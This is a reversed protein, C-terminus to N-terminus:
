LKKIIVYYNGYEYGSEVIEHEYEKIENVESELENEQYLHYYRYYIEGSITKYPVMEDYSTFKRKSKEPQNFAWVYLLILGDKKIIRMIETIAKIRDSRESLHHIVAISMANDFEDNKFPINLINGQIVDLRKKLCIKVFESSIDMGKYNIDKRSLDINKGNGCGIDALCCESHLSDIFKQIIPWVQFRTRDFDHAINDYVKRIDKDMSM